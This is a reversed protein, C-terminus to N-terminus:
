NMTLSVLSQDELGRATGTGSATFGAANVQLCLQVDVTPLNKGAYVSTNCISVPRNPLKQGVPATITFNLLNGLFTVWANGFKM